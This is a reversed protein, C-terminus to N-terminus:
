TGVKVNKFKNIVSTQAMEQMKFFILSYFFNLLWIYLYKEM